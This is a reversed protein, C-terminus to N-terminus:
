SLPLAKELLSPFGCLWLVVNIYQPPLFHSASLGIMVSPSDYLHPPFLDILSHVLKSKLLGILKSSDPLTLLEFIKM